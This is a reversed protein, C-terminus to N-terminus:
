RLSTMCTTVSSFSDLLALRLKRKMDENDQDLDSEVVSQESAEIFPPLIEVMNDLFLVENSLCLDGM